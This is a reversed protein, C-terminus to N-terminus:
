KSSDAPVWQRVRAQLKAEPQRLPLTAEWERADAKSIGLGGGALPFQDEYKAMIEAAGLRTTDVYVSIVDDNLASILWQPCTETDVLRHHGGPGAGFVVIMRKKQDVAVKRAATYDTWWEVDKPPAFASARPSTSRSLGTQFGGTLGFAAWYYPHAAGLLERREQLTA